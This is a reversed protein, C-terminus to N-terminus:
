LRSENSFIRCKGLGISCGMKAGGGEMLNDMIYSGMSGPREVRYRLWTSGGGSLLEGLKDALEVGLGGFRPHAFHLAYLFFPPRVVRARLHRLIFYFAPFCEVVFSPLAVKEFWGWGLDGIEEDGLVFVVGEDHGVSDEGGAM